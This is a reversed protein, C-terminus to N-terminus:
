RYDGLVRVVVVAGGVCGVVFLCGCWGLWGVGGGGGGGGGGVGGVVVGCGWGGFFFGMCIANATGIKEKLKLVLVDLIFQAVVLVSFM